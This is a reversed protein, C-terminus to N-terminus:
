ASIIARQITHMWGDISDAPRKPSTGSSKGSAGVHMWEGIWADISGVPKKPTSTNQHDYAWVVHMWADISNVPEKHQDRRCQRNRGFTDV